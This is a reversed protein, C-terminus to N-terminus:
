SRHEPRNRNPINKLHGNLKDTLMLSWDKPAIGQRKAQSEFHKVYAGLDDDERMAAVDRLRTVTSCGVKALAQRQCEAEYRDVMGKLEEKIWNTVAIM